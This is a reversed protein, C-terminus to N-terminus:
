ALIEGVSLGYGSVFAQAHMRKRAEPQVEKIKILGLGTQIVFGDGELDIIEGPRGSVATPNVVESRWIKLPQGQRLCYAGPWPNLGRILNHVATASGNWNIREIERTLRPAYTAQEHDQPIRPAVGQALLDLTQALVEAGLEKLADHVMGTTDNSGIPLSVQLIMDGTDMGSDMFMTTIGTEQEGNIVAWHIPAAGRYRPLLSAHVNVCGLPPLELIALPLIQGFAVVVIVDPRLAALQDVFASDRVKEPQLVTLGHVLAAEKVPSFAIKKGRGKPRDPQTVVAVVEYKERILMELCPTAFEPTGMFVVRLAAM